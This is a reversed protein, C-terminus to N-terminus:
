AHKPLSNKNSKQLEKAFFHAANCPMVIFSCKTQELVKMGQLMSDLPSPGKGLIGRTRDPIEPKNYLIYPIHDQDGTVQTMKNLLKCFYLSAEPGMGGLIGFAKTKM